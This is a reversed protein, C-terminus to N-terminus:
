DKDGPIAAFPQRLGKGIGGDQALRKTLLLKQGLSATQDLLLLLRLQYGEIVLRLLARLSHGIRCLEGAQLVFELVSSRANRIWAVLKPNLEDHYIAAQNLSAAKM